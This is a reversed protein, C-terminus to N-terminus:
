GSGRETHDKDVDIGFARFTPAFRRVIQGAGKDTEPWAKRVETIRTLESFLDGTYIVWSDGQQLKAQALRLVARAFPSSDIAERNASDLVDFYGNVFEDVSWGYAQVASASWQLFDAMRPLRKIEVPDALARAIGTFIQGLMEPMAAEFEAWFSDESLPKDLTPLEIILARSLFDPRAALEDIGNVIIPRVAGIQTEDTDTYLTRAAFGGGTTNKM